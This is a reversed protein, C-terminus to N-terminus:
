AVEELRPASWEARVGDDTEAVSRRRRDFAQPDLRSLAWVAAGRVLPSADEILPEIAPLATKPQGSNGLAYAM